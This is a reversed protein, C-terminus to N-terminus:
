RASSVSHASLLGNKGSCEASEAAFITVGISCSDDSDQRKRWMLNIFVLTWAARSGDVKWVVFAPVQCCRRARGEVFGQFIRGRARQNRRFRWLLWQDLIRREHFVAQWLRSALLFDMPMCLLEVVRWLSPGAPKECLDETNGGVSTAAQM